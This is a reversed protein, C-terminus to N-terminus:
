FFGPDPLEDDLMISSEITGISTSLVEILEIRSLQILRIPQLLSFVTHLYTASVEEVPYNLPPTLYGTGAGGAGRPVRDRRNCRNAWFLM